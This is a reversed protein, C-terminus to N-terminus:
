SEPPDEIGAEEVAAAKAPNDTVLTVKRLGLKGELPM